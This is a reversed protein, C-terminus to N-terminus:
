SEALFRMGVNLNHLGSWLVKVGPNGDSKRGLFGGLKALWLVADKLPPPQVPPKKGPNAHRWLAQWENQSFVVCCPIDPTERTQYTIWALRWAVVAYLTIAKKLRDTTGLQLDEVKCGSKLIFHFREIKWRHRYWGIKEVADQLTEVPVTTLLLWHLPEIGVPANDERADVAYLTIPSLHEGARKLPPKITVRCARITLLAQRPPQNNGSKRPVDVTCHGQIPAQNVHEFLTKYESQVGRNQAVRFLLHRNEAVAKTAFDFIDSERDCVTVARIDDPVNLLSKDMAELWKNSEKESIIKEKRQDRKGHEAIDRAWIDLSLLGLPVGTTTVALSSHIFLGLSRISDNVPGLGTTKRRTNFDLATTDQVILVTECTKMREITCERHNQLMKACSVKANNFFEYAGKADVWSGCAAAISKEPQKALQEATYCLRRVLRRDNIPAHDFEESISTYAKTEQIRLKSM